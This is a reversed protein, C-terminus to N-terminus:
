EPKPTSRRPDLTQTLPHDGIGQTVAPADQAEPKPARVPWFHLVNGIPAAAAATRPAAPQATPAARPAVPQATPVIPASVPRVRRARTPVAGTATAAPPAPAPAPMPAVPARPAVPAAASRESPAPRSYPESRTADPIPAKTPATSPKPKFIPM